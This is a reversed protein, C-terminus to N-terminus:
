LSLAWEKQAINPSQCKVANHDLSQMIYILCEEVHSLVPQKMRNGLSFMISAKSFIEVSNNQTYFITTSM